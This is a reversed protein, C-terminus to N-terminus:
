KADFVSPSLRKTYKQKELDAKVFGVNDASDEGANSTTKLPDDWHYYKRVPRAFLDAALLVLTMQAM